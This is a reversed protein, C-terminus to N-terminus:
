FKGIAYMAELNPTPSGGEKELTVAFAAADGIAKMQQFGKTSDSLVGADVPGKSGIAWLQYQQGKPAEPLNEISALVTQSNSQWYITLKSDSHTPTGALIL